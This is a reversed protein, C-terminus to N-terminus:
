FCIRRHECSRVRCDLGSKVQIDGTVMSQGSTAEGLFSVPMHKRIYSHAGDAGVLYNCKINESIEGDDIHRVLQVDVFDLGDKQEFSKLETGTEVFCGYKALQERLMAEHRDQGLVAMDTQFALYFEPFITFIFNVSVFPRDASPLLFESIEWTHTIEGGKYSRCLPTSGCLKLTNDSIGL